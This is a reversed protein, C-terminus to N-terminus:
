ALLPLCALVPEPENLRSGPTPGRSFQHFRFTWIAPGLHHRALTENASRQKSEQDKAERVLMEPEFAVSAGIPFHDDSTVALHCSM